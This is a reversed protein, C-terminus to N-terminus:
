DHSLDTAASNRTSDEDGSQPTDNSPVAAALGLRQALSPVPLPYAEKAFPDDTGGRRSELRVLGQSLAWVLAFLVAHIIAVVVGAVIVASAAGALVNGDVAMGLVFFGAAAVVTLALLSRTSFRPFFM